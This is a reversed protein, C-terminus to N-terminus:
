IFLWHEAVASRAAKPHETGLWDEARKGNLGLVQHRPAPM